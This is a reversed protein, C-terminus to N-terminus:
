GGWCFFNVRRTFIFYFCNKFHYYYPTMGSGTPGIFLFIAKDRIQEIAQVNAKTLRFLKQIDIQRISKLLKELEEKGGNFNRNTFRQKITNVSNRNETYINERQLLGEIKMIEDPDIKIGDTLDYILQLILKESCMPMKSLEDKIEDLIQKQSEM